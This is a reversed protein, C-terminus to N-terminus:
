HGVEKTNDGQNLKRLRSQTMKKHYYYNLNEIVDQDIPQLNSTM